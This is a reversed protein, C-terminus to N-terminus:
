EEKPLPKTNQNRKRVKELAEDNTRTGRADNLFLSARSTRSAIVDFAEKFIYMLEKDVALPFKVNNMAYESWAMIGVSHYVLQVNYVVEDTQKAAYKEVERIVIMWDRVSMQEKTFFVSDDRQDRTLNTPGWM